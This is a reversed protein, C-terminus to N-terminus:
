IRHDKRRIFNQALVVTVFWTVVSLLINLQYTIKIGFWSSYSSVLFLAASILFIKSYKLESILLFPVIWVLWQGGFTPTLVFFVLM